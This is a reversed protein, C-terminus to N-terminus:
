NKLPFYQDMAPGGCSIGVVFNEGSVAFNRDIGPYSYSYSCSPKTPSSFDQFFTQEGRQKTTAIFSTGNAVGSGIRLEKNSLSSTKKMLATASEAGTNKYLLNFSVSCILPGTSSLLNARDCSKEKKVEDPKGVTQEIQKALDDLKAEAAAFNQKEQRIQLPRVVVGYALLGLCIVGITGLGLFKLLKKKSMLDLRASKAM